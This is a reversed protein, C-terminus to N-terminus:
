HTVSALRHTVQYDARSWQVLFPVLAGDVSRYDDFDYEEPLVGLITARERHRRLLVGSAADFYLREPLSGDTPTAEV